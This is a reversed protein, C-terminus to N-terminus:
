TVCCGQMDMYKMCSLLLNLVGRGGGKAMFFPTEVIIILQTSKNRIHQPQLFLQADLMCCLVACGSPLVSITTILTQNTRLIFLHWIFSVM